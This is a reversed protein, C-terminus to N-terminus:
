EFCTKACIIVICDALSCFKTLKFHEVSVFVVILHHVLFMLRCFGGFVSNLTQQLQLQWQGEMFSIECWVSMKLSKLGHTQFSFVLPHRHSM